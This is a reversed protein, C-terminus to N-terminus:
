LSQVSLICSPGRCILYVGLHVCYSGFDEFLEGVELGGVGVDYLESGESAVDEAGVLEGGLLSSGEEFDDSDDVFCHHVDLVRGLLLDNGLLDKLDQLEALVEFHRKFSGNEKYFLM